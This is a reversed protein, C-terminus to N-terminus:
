NDIVRSRIPRAPNGVCIMMSPLNRTVVAGAGVVCGDGIMVNRTVVVNAGLWVNSGIIIKGPRHGQTRIPVNVNSFEHDTARMVVNPGILCDKGIVIEGGDAGIFVNHNFSCHDGIKLHGGNSYLYSGSMFSVDNGIKMMSFGSIKLNDGFVVNKGLSSFHTMWCIRRLYVGGLVSPWSSLIMNLVSFIRLSLRLFNM